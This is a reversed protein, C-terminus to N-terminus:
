MRRELSCVVRSKNRIPWLNIEWWHRNLWIEYTSYDNSAVYITADIIYPTDNLEYDQITQGEVGSNYFTNRRIDAVVTTGPVAAKVETRLNTASTAVVRFSVGEIIIELFSNTLTLDSEFMYRTVLVDHYENATYDVEDHFV